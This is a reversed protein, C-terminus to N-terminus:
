QLAADIVDDPIVAFGCHHDNIGLAILWGDDQRIANGPFLVCHDSAKWFKPEIPLDKEEWGSMLPLKTYAVPKFPPDAEHICLGMHYRRKVLWLESNSGTDYRTSSHFFHYWHEGHFVPMAGGRPIGFRYDEMWPSKHILEVQPGDVSTLMFPSTSYLCYLKGDHSFFSWNKERDGFQISSSRFGHHRAVSTDDNLYAMWQRIGDNFPFLLQDGHPLFRGDQSEEMNFLGPLPMWQITDPIVTWGDDMQTTVMRGHRWFPYCEMRLSMYNGGKWEVAGPNFWSTVRGMQGQTYDKMTLHLPVRIPLEQPFHGTPVTWVSIRPNHPVGHLLVDHDERGPPTFPVLATGTTLTSSTM